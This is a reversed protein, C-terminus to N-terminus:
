EFLPYEKTIDQTGLHKDYFEKQKKSMYVCPKFPEKKFANSPWSKIMDHVQDAITKHKEM